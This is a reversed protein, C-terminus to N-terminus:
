YHKLPEEHLYSSKWRDSRYMHCVYIEEPRWANREHGRVLVRDTLRVEARHELTYEGKLADLRYALIM